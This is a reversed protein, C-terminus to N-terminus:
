PLGLGTGLTTKYLSRLSETQALTLATSAFYSAFANTGTFNAAALGLQFSTTNANGLTNTAISSQTGDAVAFQQTTSFSGALFAFVNQTASNFVSTIDQTNGSNIASIGYRIPTDRRLRVGASAGNNMEIIVVTNLVESSSVVALLSSNTTSPNHLLGSTTMIKSGDFAIGNTGWTPSGVLTGNYTGFGGLSYVISGSGKNQSSRLPYCVMSNYLSLDKVGKVFANIQNKATADTVGAREFYAAADADFGSIGLGGIRIGGKIM